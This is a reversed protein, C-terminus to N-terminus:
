ESREQAAQAADTIFDEANKIFDQVSKSTLYAQTASGRLWKMYEMLKDDPIEKIKKGFIEGGPKGCQAVFEGPGTLNDWSVDPIDPTVLKTFKEPVVFKPEKARPKTKLPPTAAAMDDRIAAQLEKSHEDKIDALTKIPIRLVEPMEVKVADKITEVETEDLLGLGCFSLTVRRKAKTECKLYSNALSEGKLGGTAVAGTSEDCRGDPTSAQATVVYVGDIVERATIKISVRHLKRLQDTCDRTAYLVEKGQFSIFQFPKTLKNLGLSECLKDYYSLKEAGTLKALNGTVLVQMITDANLTPQTPTINSM